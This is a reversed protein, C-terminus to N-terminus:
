HDLLLPRHALLPSRFTSLLSCLADGAIIPSCSDGRTALSLCLSFPACSSLPRLPAWGATHALRPRWNRLSPARQQCVIRAATAPLVPLLSSPASTASQRPFVRGNPQIKALSSLTAWRHSHHDRVSAPLIGVLTRAPGSSSARPGPSSTPAGTTRRLVVPPGHLGAFLRCWNPRAFNAAKPNLECEAAARLNGM